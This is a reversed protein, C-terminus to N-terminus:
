ANQQRRRARWSRKMHDVLIFQAFWLIGALAVACIVPVLGIVLCVVADLPSPRTYLFEDKPNYQMLVPHVGFIRPIPRNLRATWAVTLTLLTWVTLIASPYVWLLNKLIEM